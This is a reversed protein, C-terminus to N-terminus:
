RRLTLFPARESLAATYMDQAFDVEGINIWFGHAVGRDAVVM